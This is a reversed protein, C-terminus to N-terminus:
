GQASAAGRSRGCVCRPAAEWVLHGPEWRAHTRETRFTSPAAAHRMGIRGYGRGRTLAPLHQGHEAELRSWRPHSSRQPPASGTRHAPVPHAGQETRRPVTRVLQSLHERAVGADTPGPPLDTEVLRRDAGSVLTPGAEGGRDCAAASAHRAQLGQAPDRTGLGAPRGAGGPVRAPWRQRQGGQQGDVTGQGVRAAISRISEGAALGRSIEERDALSLRDAARRRPEPRIGGCRILYARVTGTCLGLARATPKAAEGAKLRVWVQDIAQPTLREYDGHGM